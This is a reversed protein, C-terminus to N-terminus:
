SSPRRVGYHRGFYRFTTGCPSFIGQLGNIFLLSQFRGNFKAYDNLHSRLQCYVRARLRTPAAGSLLYALELDINILGLQSPMLHLCGGKDCLHGGAKLDMMVLEVFPVVEGEEDVIGEFWRNITRDNHEGDGGGLESEWYDSTM